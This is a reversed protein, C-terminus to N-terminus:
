VMKSKGKPDLDYGIARLLLFKPITLTRAQYYKRHNYLWQYMSTEEKSTNNQPLRGNDKVFARIKMYSKRWNDLNSNEMRINKMWSTIENDAWIYSSDSDSRMMIIEKELPGPEEQAYREFWVDRQQIM